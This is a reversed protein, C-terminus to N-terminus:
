RKVGLGQSCAPCFALVTRESVTMTKGCKGCAIEKTVRPMEVVKTAEALDFQVQTQFKHAM